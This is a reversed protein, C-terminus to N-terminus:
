LAPSETHYPGICYSDEEVGLLRLRLETDAEKELIQLM